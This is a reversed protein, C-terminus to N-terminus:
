MPHNFNKCQRAALIQVKSSTVLEAVEYGVSNCVYLYLTKITSGFYYPNLPNM